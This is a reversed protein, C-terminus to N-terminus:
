NITKSQLDKYWEKGRRRIIRKELEQRQNDHIQIHHTRCLPVLNDINDRLEPYLGKHFFHHPDDAYQNCVACTYGWKEFCEKKHNMKVLFHYLDM